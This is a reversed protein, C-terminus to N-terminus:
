GTTAFEFSRLLGHCIGSLENGSLSATTASRTGKRERIPLTAHVIESNDAIGGAVSIATRKAWLGFSSTAVATRVSHFEM